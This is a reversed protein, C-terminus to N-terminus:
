VLPEYWYRRVQQTLPLWPNITAIKVNLPRIIHIFVVNDHNDWKHIYLSFFLYWFTTYGCRHYWMKIPQVNLNSQCYPIIVFKHSPPPPLPFLPLTIKVTSEGNSVRSTFINQNDGLMHTPIPGYKDTHLLICILHFHCLTKIIAWWLHIPNQLGRWCVNVFHQLGHRIHQM